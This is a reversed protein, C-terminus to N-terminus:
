EDTMTGHWTVRAYPRCFSEHERLVFIVRCASTRSCPSRWGDALERLCRGLLDLTRLRGPDGYAFVFAAMVDGAADRGLDVPALGDCQLDDGVVVVDFGM